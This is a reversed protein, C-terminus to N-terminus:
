HQSSWSKYHHVDSVPHFHLLRLSGAAIKGSVTETFIKANETPIKVTCFGGQLKESFKAIWAL